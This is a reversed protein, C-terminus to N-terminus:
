FALAKRIKIIHSFTEFVHNLLLHDIDSILLAIAAMLTTQPVERCVQACKVKLLRVYNNRHPTPTIPHRKLPSHCGNTTM